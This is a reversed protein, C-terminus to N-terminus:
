SGPMVVPHRPVFLRGERVQVRGGVMVLDLKRLDEVSEDPRGDIVVLDALKGPQLTGIRDAMGLIEANTRTAAVLAQAPTYGVRGFNQLEQIYPEPLARYWDAVLDTGVGLKVGADKMKRVMGFITADSITFRRSTSGFYGGGAIIYQYPVITPVSAIGHKAMDRVVDDSRPLPHEVCDVGADVAMKTFITESDVTVRLGLNHAEEVAARVEAESFHSALKILDAGRKFQERVAARWDDPGAAERLDADPYSPATTAGFGETGHGGEGVILQGAAFIRPGPVRGQAVWEKLLFPAMGYSGVDRVTTIGSEIYYRLREVGRLAADAQSKESVELPLGVPHVYTLHTHMDVLGPMVTKGAVDIVEADAPWEKAGPQLVRAIKDGEIIITGPRAAAGTGDFVRANIIAVTKKPGTDPRVPVRRLDDSTPTKGDYYESRDFPAGPRANRAASETRVDATAVLSALVAVGLLPMRLVNTM